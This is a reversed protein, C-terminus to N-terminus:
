SNEGSSSEFASGLITVLEKLQRDSLRSLPSAALAADVVATRVRRGESTLQILRSRRDEPDVCREVLGRDVLQKTVFSLNPANCFLRQAMAKMSPPREDPDIAWLAQATAGTLQHEALAAELRASTQGTLSQTAVVATELLPRKM